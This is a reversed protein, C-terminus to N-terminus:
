KKLAAFTLTKLPYEIKEQGAFAKDIVAFCEVRLQDQVSQELLSIYSKSVIKDWCQQKTVLPNQTVVREEVKEFLTAAEPTKWVNRWTGHAFQPFTGDEFKEYLKRLEQTWACSEDEYNWILVLRGSQPLFHKFVDM